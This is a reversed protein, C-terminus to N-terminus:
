KKAQYRKNLMDIVEDTINYADQAYLVNDFATNSLIMHYGKTKNYEKLFSNVSDRLRENMKQQEAVLASSLRQDLQQLEQQKGLLRQQESEARDRSLFANNEVKKQFEAMEGQLVRGKENLSARSNEQKRLLTENLDKALQYHTLLSDVNVYALPLKTYKVSDGVKVFSQVEGSKKNSKFQLVFLIVVAVALIGNLIYNINKM